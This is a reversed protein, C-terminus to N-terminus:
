VGYYCFYTTHPKTDFVKYLKVSTGWASQPFGAQWVVDPPFGSEGRLAVLVNEKVKETPQMKHLYSTCAYQGKTYVVDHISNAFEPHNMRNIVVAAVGQQAEDPAGDSGMEAMVVRCLLDYEAETWWVDHDTRPLKEAESQEEAYNLLVPRQAVDGESVIYPMTIAYHDVLDTPLPQPSTTVDTTSILTALIAPLTFIKSM